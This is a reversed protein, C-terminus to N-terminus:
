GIEVLIQGDEIRTAYRRVCANPNHSACGTKADFAWGHWPCVILGEEVLGQGLPGGRHPCVGDLVALEGNVRTVCFVRDRASIERVEGEAPAESLQCLPMSQPMRSMGGTFQRGPAHWLRVKRM